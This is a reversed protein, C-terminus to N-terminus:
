AHSELKTTLDTKNTMGVVQDVAEGNKFIVITPIARINFRSAVEQHNDVDLKCIQAKGDMEEALEELIPAIAKCPGCWPAWFDVLVPNETSKLADDFTDEDLNLVKDSAM